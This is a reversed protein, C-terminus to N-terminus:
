ERRVQYIDFPTRIQKARKVRGTAVTREDNDLSEGVFDGTGGGGCLFVLRDFRVGLLGGVREPVGIRARPGESGVREVGPVGDCVKDVEFSSAVLAEGAAPDSETFGNLRANVLMGSLDATDEAPLEGSGTSAFAAGSGGTGIVAGGTCGNLREAIECRSVCTGGGCRSSTRVANAVSRPSLSLSSVSESVASLAAARRLDLFGKLPAACGTEIGAGSAAVGSACGEGAIGGTGGLFGGANGGRVDSAVAAVRMVKDGERGGRGGFVLGPPAPPVPPFPGNGGILELESM